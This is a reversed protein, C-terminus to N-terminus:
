VTTELRIVHKTQYIQHHSSGNNSIRDRESNNDSSSINYLSDEPPKSAMMKRYSGFQGNRSILEDKDDESITKAENQNAPVLESYIGQINHAISGFSVNKKTKPIVLDITGEIKNITEPLPSNKTEPLFMVGLSALLCLVSLTAFLANLWWLEGLLLAVPSLLGGIRGFMSNIGIGNNRLPTPYLEASYVYAIAFGGTIFFKGFMASATIYFHLTDPIFVCAMLSISSLLFFIILPIKRGLKNIMPFAIITAPIEVLGSICINLYLNGRFQDVMFSMSYYVM